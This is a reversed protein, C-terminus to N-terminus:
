RLISRREKLTRTKPQKVVPGAQSSGSPRKLSRPTRKTPKEKAVWEVMAQRLPQLHGGGFFSGSDDRDLGSRPVQESFLGADGTRELTARLVPEDANNVLLRGRFVSLTTHHFPVEDAGLGLERKWDPAIAARRDAEWDSVDDCPAAFVTRM